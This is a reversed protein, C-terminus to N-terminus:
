GSTRPTTIPQPLHQIHELIRARQEAIRDQELAICRGLEATGERLGLTLCTQRAAQRDSQVQQDPAACGGLALGAALMAWRWSGPIM